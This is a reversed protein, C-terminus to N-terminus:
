SNFQNYDYGNDAYWKKAEDEDEFLGGLETQMKIYEATDEDGTFSDIALMLLELYDEKSKEEKVEEKIEEKEEEKNQEQYKKVTKFIADDLDKAITNEVTFNNTQKQLFMVIESINFDLGTAKRVTEQEEPYLVSFDFGSEVLNKLNYM